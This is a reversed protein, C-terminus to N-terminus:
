DPLQCQDRNPAKPSAFAQAIQKIVYNLYGAESQKQKCSDKHPHIAELSDRRQQSLQITTPHWQLQQFPAPKGQSPSSQISAAM